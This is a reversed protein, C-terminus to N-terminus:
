VECIDSRSKRHNAALFQDLYDRNSFVFTHFTGYWELYRIAAGSSCCEPCMLEKATARDKQYPLFSLGFLVLGVILGSLINGTAYGVVIWLGVGGGCGAALWNVASDYKSQHSLCSTCYPVDWWKTTTRQVRVGDTRSAAARFKADAPQSCCACSCPWSLIKASVQFQYAM